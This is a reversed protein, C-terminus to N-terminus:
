DSLLIVKVMGNHNKENFIIYVYEQWGILAIFEPESHLCYKSALFCQLSVAELRIICYISVRFTFMTELIWVQTCCGVSSYVSILSVIYINTYQGTTKSPRFPSYQNLREKVLSRSQLLTRHHTVVFGCSDM